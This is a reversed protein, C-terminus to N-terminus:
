INIKRDMADVMWRMMKMGENKTQLNSEEGVGNMKEEENAAERSCWKANKWRISM